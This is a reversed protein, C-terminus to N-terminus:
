DPPGIAAREKLCASMMSYDPLWMSQCLEYTEVVHRGDAGASEKAWDLYRAVTQAGEIQQEVCTRRADPDSAWSMLCLDHVPSASAVKAAFPAGLIGATLGVLAVVAAFIQSVKFMNNLTVLDVDLLL